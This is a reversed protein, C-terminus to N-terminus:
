KTTKGNDQGQQTNSATQAPSDVATLTTVSDPGILIVAQHGQPDTAQAVFGAPALKVNKYGAQELDKMIVQRVSGGNPQGSGSGGSAAGQTTSSSPYAAPSASQQALAPLCLMSIGAIALAFEKNLRM